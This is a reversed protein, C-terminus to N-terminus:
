LNNFLQNIMTRQDPYNILVARHIGKYIFMNGAAVASAGARIANGFDSISAAGGCPVLPIDLVKSVNQIMKIDYGRRTNDRDISQLLIEGAGKKQASLSYELPDFGTNTRGGDVYVRYAGFINRKIDVSVVVSQSGYKSAISSILEQKEFFSSGIILKEVGLQILTSAHELTKIGGGYAMPMFCESALEEIFRFDPSSKEPTAGIDIVAIEDVQKDNFIKIANLPDGVYGPHKFCTTKVLKKQHIQLVPIVRVRRM